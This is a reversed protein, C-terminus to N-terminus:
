EAADARKVTVRLADWKAAGVREFIGRVGVGSAAAPLEGKTKFNELITECTGVVNRLLLAPLIALKFGMDEAMKMDITPTKGGEVYNYLCPGKVERPVAKLEDITQPAELFAMDAGAELAANSRQVAEEFGIVARADTRAIIMFDPDTRAAVAARIKAVFDYLPIIEKDDLHGCKKPFGQDEIHIAAVGTREYDRITRTVNLENGYGTDADAVVPIDVAGTITDANQVMETMTILGFDPYGKAVSTGAGTMYAATFGAREVLTATLGDYVGPAVIMGPATMMARFKQRPTQHSTM